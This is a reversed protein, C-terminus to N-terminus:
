VIGTLFPNTRREEGVTTSPGHGPHVEVEDGFPLLVTQISRMLTDFDGGPLDTRGISGSFLTDGSFLIRNSSVRDGVELCVGGPSHGPTHHALAEYRGFPIPVGAPFYRDVAPPMSIRIGFLLGQEVAASYVPLEDRHLVISADLAAKARAVGAVHDVHGHTLLIHRITLRRDLVVGLLEEVEDGPDILVGERTEECGLVFGNKYFPPVARVELIM